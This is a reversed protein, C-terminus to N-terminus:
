DRFKKLAFFITLGARETTSYNKETEILSRSACYMPHERGNEDVQSLVSGAAASSADATVLFPKSFDPYALVPATVLAQKLTELTKRM